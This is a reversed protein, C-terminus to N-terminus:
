DIRKFSIYTNSLNGDANGSVWYNAGGNRFYVYLHITDGANLYVNPAHALVNCQHTAGDYDSPMQASFGVQVANDYTSSGVKLTASVYGSANSWWMGDISGFIEFRGSQKAIKTVVVQTIPSGSTINTTLWTKNNYDSRPNWVVEPGNDVTAQITHDPSDGTDYQYRIKAVAVCYHSASRTYTSSAELLFYDDDTATTTTPVSNFGSYGSLAWVIGTGDWIAYVYATKIEGDTSGKSWYNAADAMIFQSTGSLYTAARSRFTYGAGDPIAVTIYNTADPVAGGTKTFVDLKNVSANVVPKLNKIMETNIGTLSAGSGAFATATVTGNVDLESTPNTTGIGVNGEIAVDGDGMVATYGSGITMGGSLSLKSHPHTTGIGVLGSSDVFMSEIAGTSVRMLNATAGDYIEMRVTPNTTGIGLNGGTFYSNGSTTSQILGTHTSSATIYTSDNTWQSITALTFDTPSLGSITGATHNHSDDTVAIAGNDAITADASLTIWKASGAASYQLMQTSSGDSPLHIYGNATSHTLADDTLVIGSSATLNTDASIDLGSITLTTHNHSDDTIAISNYTGTVDGTFNTTAYLGNTVTGANGSISVGYTLATDLANATLTGLGYTLAQGTLLSLSLSLDSTTITADTIEGTEITQGLYSTLAPLTTSTHNHSDDSIVISNYTGSVDGTFNTGTNLFYSAHQGDLQDSNLNTVVTTSTTTLTNTSITVATLNDITISTDTDIDEGRISNNKITRSTISSGDIDKEEITHNKIKNSTISNNKLRLIGNQFTFGSSSGFIGKVQSSVENEINTSESKMRLNSDTITEEGKVISDKENEITRTSKTINITNPSAKQDSNKFYTFSFTGLSLILFAM